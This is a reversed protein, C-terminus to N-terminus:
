PAKESEALKLIGCIYHPPIEWDMNSRKGYVRFKLGQQQHDRLYQETVDLAFQEEVGYRSVDRDIPSFKAATGDSFTASKYFSWESQNAIIRIFFRRGDANTVFGLVLNADEEYGNRLDPTTTSSYKKFDDKNRVQGDIVEQETKKNTATREFLKTKNEATKRFLERLGHPCKSEQEPTLFGPRFDTEYNGDTSQWKVILGSADCLIYHDQHGSMTSGRIEFGLPYRESYKFLTEIGIKQEFELAWYVNNQATEAQSKGIALGGPGAADTASSKESRPLCGSILLM